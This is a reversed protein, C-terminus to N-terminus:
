GYYDSLLTLRKVEIRLKEPLFSFDSHLQQFTTRDATSKWRKINQLLEMPDPEKSQIVAGPFDLSEALKWNSLYKGELDLWENVLCEIKFFNDTSSIYSKYRTRWNYREHFAQEVDTSFSFSDAKPGDIEQKTVKGSLVEFADQYKKLRVLKSKFVKPIPTSILLFRKIEFLEEEWREQVEDLDETKLFIQAEKPTM